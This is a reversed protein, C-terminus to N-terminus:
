ESGQDRQKQHWAEIQDDFVGPLHRPQESRGPDSGSLYHDNRTAIFGVVGQCSPHHTYNPLTNGANGASAIMVIYCLIDFVMRGKFLVMEAIDASNEM